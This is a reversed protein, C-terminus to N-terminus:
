LLPAYLLCPLFHIFNVAHLSLHTLRITFAPFFSVMDLFKSSRPFFGVVCCTCGRDSVCNRGTVLSSYAM